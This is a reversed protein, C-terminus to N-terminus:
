FVASIAASAAAVAASADADMVAAHEGESGGEVVVGGGGGGRQSGGEWGRQSADTCRSSGKLAQPRPRRGLAAAIRAWFRRLGLGSGAVERGSNMSGSASESAAGRENTLAEDLPSESLAAPSLDRLRWTANQDPSLAAAARNRLLLQELAPLELPLFNPPRIGARFGIGMRARSVVASAKIDARRDEADHDSDVENQPQVRGGALCVDSDSKSYYRSMPLGTQAPGHSLREQGPALFTTSKGGPQIWAGAARRPNM